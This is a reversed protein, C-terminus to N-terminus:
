MKPNPAQKNQNTKSLYLYMIFMHQVKLYYRFRKLSLINDEVPLQDRASDVVQFFIHQNMCFDDTWQKIDYFGVM